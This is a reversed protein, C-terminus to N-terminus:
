KGKAIKRLYRLGDLVDFAGGLSPDKRHDDIEECIRAIEIEVDGQDYAGRVMTRIQEHLDRAADLRNADNRAACYRKITELMADTQVDLTDSVDALSPAFANSADFPRGDLKISVSIPDYTRLNPARKFVRRFESAVMRCGGIASYGVSHVIGARIEVDKVIASPYGRGDIGIWRSGIPFEAAPDYEYVNVFTHPTAHTAYEGVIEYDVRHGSVATVRVVPSTQGKMRFFFGPRVITYAYPHGGITYAIPHGGGYAALVEGRSPHVLLDGKETIMETQDM